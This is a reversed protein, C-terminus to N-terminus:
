AYDLGSKTPYLGKPSKLRWQSSFPDNESKFSHNPENILTKEGYFPYSGM